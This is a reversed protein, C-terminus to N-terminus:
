RRHALIMGDFFTDDASSIACSKRALIQSHEGGKHRILTAFM